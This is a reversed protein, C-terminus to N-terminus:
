RVDQPLMGVYSVKLTSGAGKVNIVFNGDLDTVTGNSSGGEMITAGIVPEGKEDVVSGKVTYKQQAQVGVAFLSALTLTTALRQTRLLLKNM